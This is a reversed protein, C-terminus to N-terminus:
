GQLNSWTFLILGKVLVPMINMEVLARVHEETGKAISGLIVVAEVRVSPPSSECAAIQVLRSVVGHQV